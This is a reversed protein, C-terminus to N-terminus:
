WKNFLTFLAKIFTNTYTKIHLCIKMERPYIGGNKLLPVVMDYPLEVNLKGLIALSNEL